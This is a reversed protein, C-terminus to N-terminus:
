LLDGPLWTGSPLTGAVGHPLQKWALEDARQKLAADTQEKANEVVSLSGLAGVWPESPPQLTRRLWASPVPVYEAGDVDTVRVFAGLERRRHKRVQAAVLDLYVFKEWADQVAPHTLALHELCIRHVFDYTTRGPQVGLTETPAAIDALLSTTGSFIDTAHLGTLLHTATDWRHAAVAATGATYLLLTAPAMALRILYSKGSVHPHVALREIDNTWWRDTQESGWYALTAVLAAATDIDALLVQLRRTYEAQVDQSEWSRPHVTESREVKALEARLLDHARIPTPETALQRKTLSVAAAATAPHRTGAAAISAVADAVRTFFDGADGQVVVAGRRTALDTAAETLPYPDVWFSTFRRNPTRSWAERLAPDYKASWGAIVLGYDDFLRDLFTNVEDPYTALEAPTNLMTESRVYDGHLHVVLCGITHLPALGHLDAPSSAVVPEIGAARLATEVLHDFNTTLVVRIHGQSCLRALAHHAATPQRANDPDEPAPEFYGRLLQQRALPTSTLEDLLTDYSPESGYTERFWAFPEEPAQERAAALKSILDQQIEWAAYIGAAASTGAGLLAVYAGPSSHMAFALSLEPEIPAM